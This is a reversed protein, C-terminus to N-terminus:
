KDASKDASKSLLAARVAPVLAAGVQITTKLWPALVLASLDIGALAPLADGLFLSIAVIGDLAGNWLIPFAALAAAVAIDWRVKLWTGVAAWFSDARTYFWDFEPRHRLFPRVKWFYISLGAAFLAVTILLRDASIFTMHM